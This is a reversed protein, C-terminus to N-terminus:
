LSENGPVVDEVGAVRERAEVILDYDIDPLEEMAEGNWPLVEWRTPPNEICLCIDAPLHAGQETNFQVRVLREEEAMTELQSMMGEVIKEAAERYQKRRAMEVLLKDFSIQFAIFRQHLDELTLLSQHLSAIREDADTEVGEQRQLMETMIEGLEDLDRLTAPLLELQKEFAAKGTSLQEHSSEISLISEELEAMISPLEETDRNMDQLDDESFAEGAESERLAGAMQEYHSALSELHGAMQTSVEAQLHIIENIPPVATKAPLSQEIGSITNMLNEPYSDTAGLVVDLDNRDNEIADLVDEIAREDVFDRLTKWRKRDRLEKEKRASRQDRLTLTPSRQPNPSQGAAEPEEDSHQSGFLSSGSSAQHFDPPVLQKGLSELITDLSNSRRGRIEDWEKLQEIVAESIWKVKADLAM